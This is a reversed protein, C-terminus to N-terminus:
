VVELSIYLLGLNGLTQAEHLKDVIDRNIRISTLYSSEAKNEEGQAHYIMGLSNQSTAEVQKFGERRSIRLAEKSFYLARKMFNQNYYVLGIDNLIIAQLRKNELKTELKLAKKFHRLAEDDNGRRRYVEGINHTIVVLNVKDGIQQAIQLASRYFKMARLRESSEPFANNWIGLQNLIDLEQRPVKNHVAVLGLLLWSQGEVGLNRGKIYPLVALVFDSVIKRWEEPMSLTQENLLKDQQNSDNTKTIM